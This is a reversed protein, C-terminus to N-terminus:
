SYQVELLKNNIDLTDVDRKLLGGVESVVGFDPFNQYLNYYLNKKTFYFM